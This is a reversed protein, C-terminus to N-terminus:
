LMELTDLLGVKEPHARMRRSRTDWETGRTQLLHYWFSQVKKNEEPKCIWAYIDGCENKWVNGECEREYDDWENTSCTPAFFFFYEGYKWDGVGKEASM